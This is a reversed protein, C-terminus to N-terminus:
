DDILGREDLFDDIDIDSLIKKNEKIIELHSGSEVWDLLANGKDESFGVSNKTLLVKGGDIWSKFFDCDDDICVFDSVDPNRDLWAQIEKGRIGSDSDPTKWDQHLFEKGLGIADMFAQPSRNGETILFKRWSSSIVIQIDSFEIIRYLRDVKVPDFWKITDWEGSQTGIAQSENTVLVGDIDLFIIRM